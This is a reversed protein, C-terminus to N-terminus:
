VRDDRPALSRSDHRALYCTTQPLKWRHRERATSRLLKKVEEAVPLRAEPLKGRREIGALRVGPLRYPDGM